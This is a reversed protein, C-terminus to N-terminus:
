FHMYVFHCFAMKMCKQSTSIITCIGYKCAKCVSSEASFIMSICFQNPFWTNMETSEEIEGACVLISPLTWGLRRDNNVMMYKTSDNQRHFENCFKKNIQKNIKVSFLDELLVTRYLSITLLYCTQWAGNIFELRNGWKLRQVWTPFAFWLETSM